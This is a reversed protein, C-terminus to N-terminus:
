KKGLTFRQLAIGTLGPVKLDKLVPEVSARIQECLVTCMSVLRWPYPLPNTSPDKDHMDTRESSQDLESSGPILPAHSYIRDVIEMSSHWTHSQICVCVDYLCIYVCSIYRGVMHVDLCIDIDMEMCLIICRGPEYFQWFRYLVANIWEASEEDGIVRKRMANRDAFITAAKTM